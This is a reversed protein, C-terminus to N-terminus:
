TGRTDGSLHIHLRDTFGFGLSSCMEALWVSRERLTKSDRGEPMLYLRAPAIDHVKVLARVQEVDEPAAVVFKFFARPDAAWADLRAPVLALDAPNGSHALKPSVNFQDIMPDFAPHPEVTGNTEVEVHWRTPAEAQLLAVMRALAAGQLLPEGGTIVLRPAAMHAGMAAIAAAVEAEEMKLQNDARAFALGDKHPRNDGEFRWTYATDCWHCALNCRSLRVFVSPRGISAGEGQLAAFIEPKGPTITALSLAM